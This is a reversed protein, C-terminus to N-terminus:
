KEADYFLRAVRRGYDPGYYPKDNATVYIDVYLSSPTSRQEQDKEKGNDDNNNSTSFEPQQGRHCTWFLQVTRNARLQVSCMAEVTFSPFNIDTPTANWEQEKAFIMANLDRARNQSTGESRQLLGYFFEIVHCIPVSRISYSSEDDFVVKSVPAMHMSGNIFEICDHEPLIKWPVNLVETTNSATETGTTTEPLTETTTPSTPASNNTDFNSNNPKEQRKQAIYYLSGAAIFTIAGCAVYFMGDHSVAEAATNQSNSAASMGLSIVKM